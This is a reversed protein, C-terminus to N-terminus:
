TLPHLAGAAGPRWPVLRVPTCVCRCVVSVPGSVMCGSCASGPLAHAHAPHRKSIFNATFEVENEQLEGQLGRLGGKM